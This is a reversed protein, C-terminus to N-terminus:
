SDNGAVRGRKAQAMADALSSYRYPGVEYHASTVRVIGLARLEAEDPPLAAPAGFPALTM